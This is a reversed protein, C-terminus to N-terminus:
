EPHENLWAEIDEDTIATQAQMAMEYGGEINKWHEALIRPRLKGTAPDREAFNPDQVAEEAMLILAKVAEALEPLTLAFRMRAFCSLLVEGVEQLTAGEPRQEALWEDFQQVLMNM